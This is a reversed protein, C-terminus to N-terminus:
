RGGPLLGGTELRADKGGLRRVRPLGCRCVKGDDDLYGWADLELGFCPAFANWIDSDLPRVGAAKALPLLAELDGATLPMQWGNRSLMQSNICLNPDLSIGVSPVAVIADGIKCRGM